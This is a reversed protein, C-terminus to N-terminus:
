RRCASPSRRPRSASRRRREMFGGIWAIATGVLLAALGVPFNGPLRVNAIFGVIIIASCRCRSGRRGGVDARGAADLHLHDLHRRAHRAAGRAAHLPPDDPGVFAGILIIVGIIFAWALGAEWAQM